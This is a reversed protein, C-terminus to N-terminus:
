GATLETVVQQEETSLLPWLELEQLTDIFPIGEGNWGREAYYVKILKSLEEKRYAMLATRKGATPLAAVAAPTQGTIRAM